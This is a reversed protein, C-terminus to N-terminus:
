GPPQLFSKLISNSQIFASGPPMSASKTSTDQTPAPMVPSERRLRTAALLHAGRGQGGVRGVVADCYPAAVGQECGNRRDVTNSQM